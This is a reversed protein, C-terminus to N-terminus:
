EVGLICGYQNAEYETTTDPRNLTIKVKVKNGPASTSYVFKYEQYGDGLDRISDLTMSSFTETDTYIAIESSIFCGTVQKAKVYLVANDVNQSFIQEQSQYVPNRPSPNNIIEFGLDWNANPTWVNNIEQFFVGDSYVDSLSAEIYWFYSDSLSGTREVILAYTGAELLVNFDFQKLETVGTQFESAQIIQSTAIVSGSPKGDVMNVIRCRVGDSLSSTPKRVAIKVGEVLITKEVRFSQAIRSTYATTRGFERLNGLVENSIVQSYVVGIKKNKTFLQVNSNVKDIVDENLFGDFFLGRKYPYKGDYYNQLYLQYINYGMEAFQAANDAKHEDVESKVSNIANVISTTDTTELNSLLGVRDSIEKVTETTRGEGALDNIAAKLNNTKDILSRGEVQSETMDGIDNRLAGATTGDLYEIVNDKKNEISILAADKTANITNQADTVVTDIEQKKSNTYDTIEQQKDLIFGEVEDKIFTQMGVLANQFKNWRAATIIKNKFISELEDLRAQDIPLGDNKKLKLERYEGLYQLDSWRLDQLEDFEDILYGYEATFTSQDNRM